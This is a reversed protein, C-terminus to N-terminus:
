APRAVLIPSALWEIDSGDRPEGGAYAEATSQWAAVAISLPEFRNIAACARSTDIMEKAFLEREVDSLFRTWPFPDFLRRGFSEPSDAVAASIIETAFRLGERNRRLGSATTLVLDEGDRRSITVEGLEAARAVDNPSRLLKSFTAKQDAQAM